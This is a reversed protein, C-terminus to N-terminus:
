TATCGREEPLHRHAPGSRPELTGDLEITGGDPEHGQHESSTSKGAGNPGLLGLIAGKPVDTSAM